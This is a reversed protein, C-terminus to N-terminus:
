RVGSYVFARVTSFRSSPQLRKALRSSPYCSFTIMYYLCKHDHQWVLITCRLTALVDCSVARRAVQGECAAAALRGRDGDARPPARKGKGQRREVPVDVIM